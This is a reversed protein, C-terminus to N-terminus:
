LIIGRGLHLQSLQDVVSFIGLQNKVTEKAKTELLVRHNNHHIDSRIIRASHSPTLRAAKLKMKTDTKTM